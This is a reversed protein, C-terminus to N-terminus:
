TGLIERTVNEKRGKRWKAEREWLRRDHRGDCHRAYAEALIFHLTVGKELTPQGDCAAAEQSKSKGLKGVCALNPAREAFGGM